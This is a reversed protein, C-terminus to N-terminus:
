SSQLRKCIPRLAITWLFIEVVHLLKITVRYCFVWNQHKCILFSCVCMGAIFWGIQFMVAFIFTKRYCNRDEDSNKALRHLKKLLGISFLFFAGGVILFIPIMVEAPCSYLYISGTFFINIWTLNKWLILFFALTLIWICSVEQIIVGNMFSTKWLIATRYIPSM